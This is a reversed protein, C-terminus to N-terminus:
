KNKNNVYMLKVLKAIIVIFMIVLFLASVKFSWHERVIVQYIMLCTIIIIGTLSLIQRM